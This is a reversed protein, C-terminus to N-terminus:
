PATMMKDRLLGVVDTMSILAEAKLKGAVAAAVTDANINYCNNNEDCGITSIVPIFNNNLVEDIVETNMDIIDGVFGHSEDLPRCKIMNDDM